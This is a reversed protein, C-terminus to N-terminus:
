HMEAVCMELHDTCMGYSVCDWLLLRIVPPFRSSRLNRVVADHEDGSSKYCNLRPRFEM